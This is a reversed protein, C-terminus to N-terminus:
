FRVYNSYEEEPISSNSDIQWDESPKDDQFTGKDSNGCIPPKIKSIIVKLPCNGVTIGECGGDM